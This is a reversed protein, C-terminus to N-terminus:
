CVSLPCPSTSPVIIPFMHVSFPPFSTCVLYTSPCLNRCMVAFCTFVSCTSSWLVCACVLCFGFNLACFPWWPPVAILYVLLVHVLFSGLCIDYLFWLYLVFHGGPHCHRLLIRVACPIGARSPSPSKLFSLSPSLYMSLSLPEPSILLPCLSLFMTQSLSLLHVTLSDSLLM